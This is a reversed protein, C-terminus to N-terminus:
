SAVRSARRLSYEYVALAALFLAALGDGVSRWDRLSRDDAVDECAEYFGCYSLGLFMSVLLVFGAKDQLRTVTRQALAPEDKRLDGTADSRLSAVLGMRTPAGDIKDLIQTM